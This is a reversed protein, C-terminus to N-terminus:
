LTQELADCLKIWSCPDLHDEIIWCAAVVAQVYTWEAIRREDLNLLDAFMQIRKKIITLMNQCVLIGPFPNRIYAGCEYAPDGIFGKPDIVRWTNGHQLINEHHLDGHLLVQNPTMALLSTRLAKAKQLHRGIMPWDKDLIMLIDGVPLFLPSSIQSSKFYNIINATITTGEIDRDPFFEKLMTGPLLRELLLAGASADQALVKVCQDSLAILAAAERAVASPDFGINNGIKLIVPIGNRTGSVVYNYSLNPLPQIATIEWRDALQAITASLSALWRRGRDGYMDIITQEFTRTMNKM